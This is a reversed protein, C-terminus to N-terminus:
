EPFGLGVYPLEMKKFQPDDLEIEITGTFQSATLSYKAMLSLDWEKSAGNQNPRVPTANFELDDAHDGTIRFGIVRFTHGSLLTRLKGITLGIGQDTKVGVGKPNPRLMLRPPVFSVDPTVTGSVRVQLPEGPIGDKTFTEIMVDFGQLGLEVPPTFGAELTWVAESFHAQRALTTTTGEPTSLVEGLTMGAQGLAKITVIGTAGAGQPIQQLNVSKPAIQWPMDVILHCELTLYPKEVSNSSVRVMFLKDTNKVKVKTTDVRLEIEARMGPELVLLELPNKALPPTRTGDTEVRMIRAVTCGCGPDVKQITVPRPDKNELVFTHHPIKGNEVVGFDFYGPRQEFEDEQVVVVLGQEM